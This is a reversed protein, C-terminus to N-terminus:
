GFQRVMDVAMVVERFLFQGNHKWVLTGGKIQAIGESLATVLGDPQWLHEGDFFGDCLPAADGKGVVDVNQKFKDVNVCLQVDFLVAVETNEAALGCLHGLVEVFDVLVANVGLMHEVINQVVLFQFDPVEVFLFALFLFQFIEM